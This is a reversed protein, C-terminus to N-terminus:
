SHITSSYQDHIMFFIIKHLYYITDLKVKIILVYEKKVSNTLKYTM